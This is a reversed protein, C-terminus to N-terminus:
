AMCTRGLYGRRVWVVGHGEVVGLDVEADLVVEVVDEAREDEDADGADERHEERADLVVRVAAVSDPLRRRM